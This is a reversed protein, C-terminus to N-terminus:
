ERKRAYHQIIDENGNWALIEDLMVYLNGKGFDSKVALISLPYQKKYVKTISETHCVEVALFLDHIVVDARGGKNFVVETSFQLGREWCYQCILYKMLRHENTESKGHSCKLANKTDTQIHMKSKMINIKRQKDM